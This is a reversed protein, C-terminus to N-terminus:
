IRTSTRQHKNITALCDRAGENDEDIMATLFDTPSIQTYAFFQHTETVGIVQVESNGPREPFDSSTLYDVMALREYEYTCVIAVRIETDFLVERIVKRVAAHREMEIRQLEHLVDVYDKFM